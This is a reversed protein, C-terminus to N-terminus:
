PPKRWLGTTEPPKWHDPFKLEKGSRQLLSSRRNLERIRFSNEGHRRGHLGHHLRDGFRPHEGMATPNSASQEAGGGDGGNESLGYDALTWAECQKEVRDPPEKENGIDADPNPRGQIDPAYLIPFQL